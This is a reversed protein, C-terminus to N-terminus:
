NRPEQGSWCDITNNPRIGCTHYEGASLTVFPGPLPDSRSDAWEYWYSYVFPFWVSQPGRDGHHPACKVDGSTGVACTHHTGVSLATFERRPAPARDEEDFPDYQDTDEDRGWCIVDRNTHLACSHVKGSGLATYTGAPPNTQGFANDGWCTIHGAADLACAHREGASLATYSGNPPTAQGYANDGWCTIAGATNLACNYYAGASLDSFSGAPPRAQGFTNEGWCTTEGGAGLACSHREGSSLATFTGAPPTAQAHTNGGWCSVTADTSLACTHYAGADLATFTGAPSRTATLDPLTGDIRRGTPIWCEASGSPLIGCAIQSGASLAAFRSPGETQGPLVPLVWVDLGDADLNAGWCAVTENSRGCTYDSGADIEDFPLWNPPSSQGADNAGWCEAIDDFRLGCTHLEGATIAQYRSTPPNAQGQSNAGWCAATGDARLGCSHLRGTTISSFTEPPATAQAHTNDGWCAVSSDARLGCTHEWGANITNFREPPASAQGHSDDGWCAVEHDTTIACTHRGGSTVSRFGGPPAAAQGQLNGGWCAVSTDARLGCAHRGGVSLATYAGAPVHTVDFTQKWREAPEEASLDFHVPGYYESRGPFWCDMGGDLRLGCAQGLGASLAAFQGTPAPVPAHESRAPGSGYDRDAPLGGWCEARGDPRLGCTFSSGASLATFTGPPPTSQGYADDGWCEVSGDPRIGCSHDDGVTVATFAGRPPRARGTGDKPEWVAVVDGSLWKITNSGWCAVEGSVRLGCAHQSGTSIATFAGAPPVFEDGVADPAGWWCEVRGDPRIGCPNGGAASIAVFPGVPPSGPSSGWCTVDGEVRIACTRSQSASVALFEGVPPSAKGWSDNGWCEIQWDPRIGCAHGAPWWYNGLSVSVFGGRALGAPPIPLEPEGGTTLVIPSAYVWGPGSLDGVPVIRERPWVERGSPSTLALELRGEDIRRARLRVGLWGPAGAETSGLPSTSWWHGGVADEDDFFRDEPLWLTAMSNPRVGVEIAGSDVRRAAIELFIRDAVVSHEDAAVGDPRARVSGLGSTVAGVVASEREWDVSDVEVVERDVSDLTDVEGDVADLTDVEEDVADLTDVEGGGTCATAILALALAATLLKCMM